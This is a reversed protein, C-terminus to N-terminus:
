PKQSKRLNRRFFYMMLSLLTIVFFMISEGFGLEYWNYLAAAISIVAIALWVMELTFLVKRNM